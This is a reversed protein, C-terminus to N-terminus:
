TLYSGIYKKQGLKFSPLLTRTLISYIISIDHLKWCRTFIIQMKNLIEQETETSTSARRHSETSRSDANRLCSCPCSGPDVGTGPCFSFGQWWATSAASRRGWWLSSDQDRELRRTGLSRFKICTHGVSSRWASSFVLSTKNCLMLTHISNEINSPERSAVKNSSFWPVQVIHKSKVQHTYFIHLFTVEAKLCFFIFHLQDRKEKHRCIHHLRLTFNWKPLDNETSHKIM